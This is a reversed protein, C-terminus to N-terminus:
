FFEGAAMFTQQRDASWSWHASCWYILTSSRRTTAPDAGLARQISPLAVNVVSGDM